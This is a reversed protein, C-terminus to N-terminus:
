VRKLTEFRAASASSYALPTGTSSSTRPEPYMARRHVPESRLHADRHAAATQILGPAPLGRSQVLLAHREFLDCSFQPDAMLRHARRDHGTPSRDARATATGGPDSGSHLEGRQRCPRYLGVIAKANSSRGGDPTRSIEPQVPGSETTEYPTRAGDEPIDRHDSAQA